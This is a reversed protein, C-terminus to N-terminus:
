SSTQPELRANGAQEFDSINIRHSGEATTVPRISAGEIKIGPLM